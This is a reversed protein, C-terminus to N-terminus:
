GLMESDKSSFYFELLMAIMLLLIGSWWSLLRIMQFVLSFSTILSLLVGQRLSVGIHKYYVENKFLWLRFYFGFVAFTCALAIFLTIFFFSLSLGMNEYPSLRNLVVFFSIWAFFGSICILSIYRSYIM